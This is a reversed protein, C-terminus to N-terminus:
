TKMRKPSYTTWNHFRRFCNLLKCMKRCSLPKMNTIISIRCIEIVKTMGFIIITALLIKLLYNICCRLRGMKSSYSKRWNPNKRISNRDRGTL